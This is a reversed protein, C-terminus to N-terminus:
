LPVVTRLELVVESSPLSIVKHHIAGPELIRLALSFVVFSDVDSEWSPSFRLVDRWRADASALLVSM